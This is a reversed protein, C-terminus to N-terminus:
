VEHPRDQTRAEDAEGYEGDALDSEEEPTLADRNPDRPGLSGHEANERLDQEAQEFGEAEGGGAEDVPRREPDEDAPRRGGVGAAEHAAADAEREALPDDPDSESMGSVYGTKPGPFCPYSVPIVMAIM